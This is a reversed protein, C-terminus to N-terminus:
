ERGSEADPPDPRAGTGTGSEDGDGDGDGDGPEGCVKDPTVDILPTRNLRELTEAALRMESGLDVITTHINMAVAQPICKAVLGYFIAPDTRALSILGANAPGNVTNFAQEVRDRVAQTLKNPRGKRSGM